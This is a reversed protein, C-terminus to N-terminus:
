GVAFDATQRGNFNKIALLNKRLLSIRSEGDSLRWSHRRVVTLHKVPLVTQDSTSPEVQLM